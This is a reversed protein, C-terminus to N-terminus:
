ENVVGLVDRDQILVLPKDFNSNMLLKGAFRAYYITDGVQCWPDGNGQDKWAQEGIAVVKGVSTNIRQTEKVSEPIIINSGKPKNLDEEVDRPEILVAFGVPKINM